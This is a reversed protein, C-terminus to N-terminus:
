VRNCYVTVRTKGGYTCTFLTLDFIGATMEGVANPALIDKAIVEYVTAVGDMDTFVVQDGEVLDSLGGFHRKYNHAMIVFDEGRVSGSFRCPAIKLRPYDWDAMVPLELGLSPFSLYGIYAYGEIEEESMELTSEDLYELPTGLPQEQVPNDKMEEENKKIAEMIQPLLQLASEAARKEEYQNYLFLSVASLILVAGMIMFFIGIKNKMVSGRIPLM